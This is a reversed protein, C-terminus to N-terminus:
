LVNISLSKLSNKISLRCALLLEGRIHLEFITHVVIFTITSGTLIQYNVTFFTLADKLAMYTAEVMTKQYVSEFLSNSRGM